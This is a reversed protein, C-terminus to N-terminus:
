KSVPNLFRSLWEMGQTVAEPTPSHGSRHNMMGIYNPKGYLSYIERAAELFPWSKEGDSSEGAILLFPRPAILALLEQQDAGAPLQRIREGLYWISEYNSFHLSIGPESSVVAAIRPDFAAAYLAMKGGLSHGMIGIRKADVDPRSVLYDVLRQSQWVWQGLGTCQPNRRILNLVSEDYGEGDNEGSWRIAVALFGHLAALEAFARTGGRVFNRGGLDIGAPTDVDYFPVIVVPLQKSRPHAPKVILVRSPYEQDIELQLLEGTWSIEHLSQVVKAVPVKKPMAPAGLVNMWQEKLKKASHNWEVPTAIRQKERTLLSKNLPPVPQAKQQFNQLWEADVVPLRAALSRIVRFGTFPSAQEPPMSSRFAKNWSKPNTLFSGGRILRASGRLPGSPDETAEVITQVNFWDECWEWVNGFLDYLGLSNPAYSSVRATGQKEFAELLSRSNQHGSERLRGTSPPTDQSMRRWEAETPLRYGNCAPDRRGSKLDYCPKLREIESRRNCYRIADMWSVNEVPREEGRYRSPNAGMVHQYERQTIETRGAVFSGVSIRLKMGTLADQVESTSEPISVFEMPAAM